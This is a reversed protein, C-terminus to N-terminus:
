PIYLRQGAYIHNLDYINNSKAIYWASVGYYLGIGSLTEGYRVIHVRHASKYYGPIWLNQGAYIFNPNTLGNSRMLQGVKVGHAYAITSLTDGYHVEYWYGEHAPPAASAVPVVLGMMLLVLVTLIVFRKM